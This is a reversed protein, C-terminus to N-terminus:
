TRKFSAAFFADLRHLHPYSRLHGVENLISGFNSSEDLARLDEAHFKTESGLFNEVVRENEEPESSCTAYVLRGGSRVTTAAVRLMKIQRDAMRQIDNLQRRWRIDPDRQVTGLGSCPVDVLVRDFITGFPTNRSLDHAVPKV